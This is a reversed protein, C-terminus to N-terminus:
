TLRLEVGHAALVDAVDEITLSHGITHADCRAALAIQEEDEEAIGSLVTAPTGDGCLHCGGLFEVILVRQHGASYEISKRPSRGLQIPGSLAVHLIPMHQPEYALARYWNRWASFGKCGPVSPDPNGNPHVDHEGCLAQADLPVPTRAFAGSVLLEDNTPDSWLIGRKWGMVPNTRDRVEFIPIDAVVPSREEGSPRLGAAFCLAAPDSPLALEEALEIDWSLIEPRDYTALVLTRGGAASRRQLMEHRTMPGGTHSTDAVILLVDLPTAEWAATVHPYETVDAGAARLAAAATKSGVVGITQM